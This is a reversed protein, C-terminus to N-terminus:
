KDLECPLPVRDGLAKVETCLHCDSVPLLACAKVLGNMGDYVLYTRTSRQVFGTVLNLFETVALSAVTGNLSIVSPAAINQGQVYSPLKGEIEAQLLKPELIGLCGLCPGDPYILMVRGGIRTIGGPKNPDPQIDVGTDILPILYQHAMRNLVVRSRLNDTCCFIVDVGRLKMAVSAHLVSGELPEVKLKSNVRLGLEQMVQVKPRGTDSHSSGVIRTLNSEEIIDDDVPVIARVGLRVLQEYVQSGIGGVGVVAVSVNQILRQGEEGFALVQRSYREVRSSGARSKSNLLYLKTIRDGVVKFLSVPQSYHQAPLWVRADVSDQGMVIAAHPMSPVRQQIKEFLRVEGADDIGSFGVSGSFPHSHALIFCFQELRCRKVLPALFEPDIELYMGGKTLFADVPVPMVERILLGIRDDTAYLGALLIAAEEYPARSLLHRRLSDYDKGTMSISIKM